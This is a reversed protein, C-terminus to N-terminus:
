SVRIVEKLVEKGYAALMTDHEATGGSVGLAGIIKDEVKLPEGGGFIVIKGENTHQIGYLSGGPKALQALEATSMKLGASTFTKNVAIDYSAIYADDMSHVAVIRGAADSVAIVANVGTEKAKQEVKEILAKAIQLNMKHKKCKCEHDAEHGSKM